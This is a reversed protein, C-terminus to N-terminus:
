APVRTWMVPILREGAISELRGVTVKVEIGPTTWVGTLVLHLV